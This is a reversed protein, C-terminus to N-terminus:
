RNAKIEKDDIKLISSASFAIVLLFTILAFPVLYGQTTDYLYGTFLPGLGGGITDLINIVGMIKGLAMLGFLDATLLQILTYLGGWGAGYLGIGVWILIPSNYSLATNIIVSGVLMVGVGTLLVKKRGFREALEGSIIKGFFGCIFLLSVGTAAVKPVYNDDRLMLFVHGTMAMIAYFTCFAMLSLLWFNKSKVAQALTSGGARMTADKLEEFTVQRKSDELEEPSNKVLVLVLPIILLPIYSLWVMVERWDAISLLYTNFLPFLGNGASGGAVLLGMALGRRGKFWTSVLIVNVIMGAICLVIGMFIHIFYMQNLSVAQSYQWLCGSLIILGTIILKKVGIKDALVGGFFGFVATSWLTVADRFKLDARLIDEGTIQSLSITIEEEFVYLGGLILGNTVAILLFSMTLIIWRYKLPDKPLIDIM